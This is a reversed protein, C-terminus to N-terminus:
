SRSRALTLSRFDGIKALEQALAHGLDTETITPVDDARAAALFTASRAINSISGGSLPHEQALRRFYMDRGESGLDFRLVVETGDRATTPWVSRWLTERQGADPQHFRVLATLRRHFAPDINNTGLLNTTFVVFGTFQELRSLLHATGANAYRDQGHVVQTRPGLIADAENVVLLAGSAQTAAFVKDVHEEFEGVWKSLLSSIELLQVPLGLEHALAEAAITKGTGPPGAFLLYTGTLRDTMRDWGLQEMVLDRNVIRNRADVLARRTDDALVLDDFTARPQVAHLLGGAENAMHHSLLETVELTTFSGQSAASTLVDVARDIPVGFRRVLPEIGDEPAAGTWEAARDWIIRREGLNPRQVEDNWVHLMGGPPLPGPGTSMAAQADVLQGVHEADVSQPVGDVLCRVDLRLCDRRLRHTDAHDYTSFTSWPVALLRSGQAAAIDLARSRQSTEDGGHIHVLDGRRLAAIPADTDGSLAPSDLAGRATLRPDLLVDQPDPSEDALFIRLVSRELAFAQHRIPLAVPGRSVLGYKVLPGSTLDSMLELREGADACFLAALLDATPGTGMADGVLFAYRQGYRGDFENFLCALLVDVQRPTLGYNRVLRGIPTSGPIVAAPDGAILASPDLRSGSRLPGGFDTRGARFAETWESFGGGSDYAASAADVAATLLDDFRHWAGVLLEYWDRAPRRGLAASLALDLIDLSLEGQPLELRSSAGNNSVLLRPCSAELDRVGRITLDVDQLVAGKGPRVVEVDARSHLLLEVLSELLRPEVDSILVKCSAGHASKAM